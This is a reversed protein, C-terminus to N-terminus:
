VQGYVSPLMPKRRSNPRRMLDIVAKSKNYSEVIQDCRKSAAPNRESDVSLELLNRGTRQRSLDPSHSHLFDPTYRSAPFSKAPSPQFSRHISAMQPHLRPLFGTVKGKESYRAKPFRNIEISLVDEPTEILDLLRSNDTDGTAYPVRRYVAPLRLIDDCSPRQAPDLRLMLGIVESLDPSFGTPLPSFVGSLIKRSLTDMDTGQFPPKLAATEYVLCGLSWIDSKSSYPHDKWIEPSAYFPTGTQTYLLGLQAVKSMSLDAVKATGDSFLLVNATKLDRHVINLRHLAALGRVIQM